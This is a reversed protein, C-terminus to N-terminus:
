GSCGVLRPEGNALSGRSTREANRDDPNAPRIVAKTASRENFRPAPPRRLRRRQARSSRPRRDIFPTTLAPRRRTKADRRFCDRRRSQQEARVQLLRRVLPRSERPREAAVSRETDKRVNAKGQRLRATGRNTGNGRALVHRIGPPVSSTPWRAPSDCTTWGPTQRGRRRCRSAAGAVGSAAEAQHSLQGDTQPSDRVSTRRV